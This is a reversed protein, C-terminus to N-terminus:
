EVVFRRVGEQAGFRVTCQYLGPSLDRLEVRKLQSWPAVSGRHVVRGDLAHVELTGSNPQPAYTIAFAGANPNPYLSLNLNEPQVVLGVDLSDCVSGDLAGLHYNPHNPLSNFWYTPLTIAHQQIDCAAGLSDPYNIVHLKFTSNGTSIYIKGDRALRAEEFLTAFPPSPSYTSDWTAIHTISGGVDPADMDVQYVDYVSSVYLFRGSPSFAVGGSGDFDDIAVHVHDSMNGSCRDVAFIDLDSGGWYYAFKSGDPSFVTRGGDAPRAVGITQEYPGDIGSPSVLFRWFRDSDVEHAYVWWDRGNGHRVADLRGAQIEGSLIVENKEVVEGAGSNLSMDVTTVYLNFATFSPIDDYTCHFLYYKEADGPGPIIIAAQPLLLGGPYWNDTYDSPNLGSGNLMTDGDAQGVVVGNTFFLLDGNANTINASTHKLDIVRDLESTIVAAGSYFEIDSGGWPPGSIHEFGGQWLNNLGQPQAVSCVVLGFVICACREWASSIPDPFPKM